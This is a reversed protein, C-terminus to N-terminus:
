RKVKEDLIQVVRTRGMNLLAAIRYPNLGYKHKLQRIATKVYVSDEKWSEYHQAMLIRRNRTQAVLLRANAPIEKLLDDYSKGNEEAM